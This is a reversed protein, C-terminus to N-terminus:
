LRAGVFDALALSLLERGDGDRVSMTWQSWKRNLMGDRRFMLERVVAAAHERAADLDTLETGEVDTVDDKDHLCFYYTPM